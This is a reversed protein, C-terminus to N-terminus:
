PCCSDERDDNDKLIVIEDDYESMDQGVNDYFEYPDPFEFDDM